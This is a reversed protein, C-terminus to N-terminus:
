DDDEMVPSWRRAEFTLKSLIGVVALLVAFVMPIVFYWSITNDATVTVSVPEGRGGGAAGTGGTAHVLLKYTGATAVKFYASFSKSGESWSGESDYGHYYSAEDYFEAIVQEDTNVVAYDLSIWSNDLPASGSVRLITDDHPVEFPQTLYEQKYQAATVNERLVVTNKEAIFSYFFLLVNLVLFAVGIKGM